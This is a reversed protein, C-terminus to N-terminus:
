TPQSSLAAANKQFHAVEFSMWEYQTHLDRHPLVLAGLLQRDQCVEMTVAWDQLIPASRFVITMLINNNGSM